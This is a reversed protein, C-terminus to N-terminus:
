YLYQYIECQERGLLHMGFIDKCMQGIDDLQIHVQHIRLGKYM